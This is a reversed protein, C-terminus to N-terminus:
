LLNNVQRFNTKFAMIMAKKYEDSARGMKSAFPNNSDPQELIPKQHNVPESLFANARAIKEQHDIKKRLVVLKKDMKDYAAADEASIKGADDTHEELFKYRKDYLDQITM